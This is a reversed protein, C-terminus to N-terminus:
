DVMTMGRALNEQHVGHPCVTVVSGSDHLIWVDDTPQEDVEGIMCVGFIVTPIQGSTKCYPKANYRQTNTNNSCSIKGDTRVNSCTTSSHHHRQFQHHTRLKFKRHRTELATVSQKVSTVTARRTTVINDLKLKRM